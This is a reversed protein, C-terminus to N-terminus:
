ENAEQTKATELFAEQGYDSAGQTSKRRTFSDEDAIKTCSTKCRKSQRTENIMRNFLCFVLYIVFLSGLIYKIGLIL